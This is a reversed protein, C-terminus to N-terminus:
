SYFEKVFKIIVDELNDSEFISNFGIMLQYQHNVINYLINFKFKHNSDTYLIEVDGRKSSPKKIELMLREIKLERLYKLIIDLAGSSQLEDHLAIEAMKMLIYDYNNDPSKFILNKSRDLLIYYEENIDLSVASFHDKMSSEPLQKIKMYVLKQRESLLFLKSSVEDETGWFISKYKNFTAKAFLERKGTIKNESICFGNQSKIWKYDGSDIDDKTKLISKEEVRAAMVRHSNHIQM